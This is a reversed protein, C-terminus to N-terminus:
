RSSKSLQLITEEIKLRHPSNPDAQLLKEWAAIGDNVNQKGYILIIGKNYMAQAFGPSYELVKNLIELARDEQGLNHYCIALDTEVNPDRPRVSLSQRYYDIAKLFQGSDYYSNGMQALRDPDQSNEVAPHKSNTYLSAAATLALLAVACAFVLNTAYRSSGM